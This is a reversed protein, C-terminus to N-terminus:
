NGLAFWLGNETRFYYLPKIGWNDIGLYLQVMIQVWLAFAYMGRLKGTLSTGWEEYGHVLVETDSKTTFQHGSAQLEERLEQFNYIKGDSVVVINRNENYIPQDGTDFDLISLRRHGLGCTRDSFFGEGDPGRHLLRDTMTKLVQRDIGRSSIYGAIGCM